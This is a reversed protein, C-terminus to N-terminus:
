NLTTDAGTTKPKAVGALFDRAVQRGDEGQNGAGVGEAAPRRGRQKPSTAPDISVGTGDPAIVEGDDDADALNEQVKVVRAGLYAVFVSLWLIGVLNWIM